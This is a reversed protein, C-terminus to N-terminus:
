PQFVPTPSAAHGGPARPSRVHRELEGERTLAAPDRRRLLWEGYADDIGRSLRLRRELARAEAQPARGPLTLQQDLLEAVLGWSGAAAAQELALELLREREAAPLGDALLVAQALRAAAAPGSQGGALLVEAARQRQGLSELHGALLDLAPRTV